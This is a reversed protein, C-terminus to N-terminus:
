VDGYLWQDHQRNSFGDVPNYVPLIALEQRLRRLADRQQVSPSQIPMDRLSRAIHEILTLKERPTLREITQELTDLDQQAM